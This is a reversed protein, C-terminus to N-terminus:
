VCIYLVYLICIKFNIVMDKTLLLMCDDKRRCALRLDLVIDSPEMSPKRFYIFYKLATCQHLQKFNHGEVAADLHGVAAM